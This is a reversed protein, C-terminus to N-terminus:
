NNTIQIHINTCDIIEQLVEEPFFSNLARLPSDAQRANNLSALPTAFLTVIIAGPDAMPNQCWRGSQVMMQSTFSRLIVKM